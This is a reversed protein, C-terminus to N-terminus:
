MGPLEPLWGALEQMWNWGDVAATPWGYVAVYGTVAGVVVAVVAGTVILRRRRVRPDMAEARRRAERAKERAAHLWREAWDWETALIALGLVIGLIGPGPAALMVLGGLLVLVGVTTVVVKTTLALFPHSHLRQHLRGRLRTGSPPQRAAADADTSAAADADTSAAPDADVESTANAENENM